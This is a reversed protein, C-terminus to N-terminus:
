IDEMESQEMQDNWRVEEIIDEIEETLIEDIIREGLGRYFKYDTDLCTGIIRERIEKIKEPNM